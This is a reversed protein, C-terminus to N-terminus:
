TTHSGGMVCLGSTGPLKSQGDGVGVIVLDGELRSMRRERKETVV